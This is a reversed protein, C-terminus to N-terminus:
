PRPLEEGLLTKAVAATTAMTKTESHPDGKKPTPHFNGNGTRPHKETREIKFTLRGLSFIPVSWYKPKSGGTKEGRKDKRLM